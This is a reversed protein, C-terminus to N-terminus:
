QSIFIGPPVSADVDFTDAWAFLAKEAPSDGSETWPAVGIAYFGQNTPEVTNEIFYAFFV